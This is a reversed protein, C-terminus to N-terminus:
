AQQGVTVVFGLLVLSNRSREFFVRIPKMLLPLIIVQSQLLTIPETAPSYSVAPPSLPQSSCCTTHELLRSEELLLLFLELCIEVKLNINQKRPKEVPLVSIHQRSSREAHTERCPLSKQEWTCATGTPNQTGPQHPLLLCQYITGSM